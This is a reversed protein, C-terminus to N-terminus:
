NLLRGGFQRRTVPRIPEALRNSGASGGSGALATGDRLDLRCDVAMALAMGAALRTQGNRRNTQRFRKVWIGAFLM